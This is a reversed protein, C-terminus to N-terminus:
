RAEKLATVFRFTKKRGYMDDAIRREINNSRSIEYTQAKEIGWSKLFEDYPNPKKDTEEKKRRLGEKV